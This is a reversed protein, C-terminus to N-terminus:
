KIAALQQKATAGFKPDNVIKEYYEKATAKDGSQQATAAITYMIQAADKANPSLELYKKFNDIAEASKKLQSYATGAIKYANANELYENSKLAFEAAAAYAKNKLEASAKKVYITSLQKKAAAEQGNAIAINYAEEAEDSKGLAGLAMGKRLAAMGDNPNLALVENFAALAGAYDKANLLSNGQTMYVSPLLTAVEDAVDAQEYEAAIAATKKLQEIGTTYDADKIADKAISLNVNPIIKKCDSVLSAKQGEEDDEAALAVSLAQEFSTLATAYDKDQLATAGNNFLETAQALDQASAAFASFLVAAAIVIIKKM